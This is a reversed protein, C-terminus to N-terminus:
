IGDHAPSLMHKYGSVITHSFPDAPGFVGNLNSSEWPFKESYLRARKTASQLAQLKWSYEQESDGTVTVKGETEWAPKGQSSPAYEVSNGALSWEGIDGFQDDLEQLFQESNFDPLDQGPSSGVSLHEPSRYESSGWRKRFGKLGNSDGSRGGSDDAAESALVPEEM